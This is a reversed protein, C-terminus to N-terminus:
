FPLDLSTTNGRRECVRLFNDADVEAVEAGLVNQSSRREKVHGVVELKGFAGAAPRIALLVLEALDLRGHAHLEAAAEAREAAGQGDAAVQHLLLLLAVRGGVQEEAAVRGRPHLEKVLAEVHAAAALGDGLDVGGAGRVEGLAELGDVGEQQGAGEENALLQGDGVEDARDGHVVQNGDLLEVRSEELGAQAVEGAQEARDLRAVRKGGVGLLQSGQLGAGGLHLGGEDNVRPLLGVAVALAVELLLHHRPQPLVDVSLVPAEVEHLVVLEGVLAGGVDGGGVHQAAEQLAELGFEAANGEAHHVHHPGSAGEVDHADPEDLALSKRGAHSLVGRELELSERLEVHLALSVALEDGGVEARLVGNVANRNSIGLDSDSSVADGITIIETELHDTSQRGTQRRTRPGAGPAAPEAVKRFEGGCLAEHSRWWRDRPGPALNRARRLYGFFPARQRCPGSCRWVHRRYYNVEDHFNHRVTVNLGTIENVRQM